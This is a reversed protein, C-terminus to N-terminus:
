LSRESTRIPRTQGTQTLGDRLQSSTRRCRRRLGRRLHDSRAHVFVRDCMEEVTAVDHKRSRGTVVLPEKLSKGKRIIFRKSVDNTTDVSVHTM